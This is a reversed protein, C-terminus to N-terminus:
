SMDMADRWGVARPHRPLDKIGHDFSRCKLTKFRYRERDNWIEQKQTKTFHGTAIPIQKGNWDVIFKGLTGNPVKGLKSSSRKAYGLSDKILVNNNTEGEIFDVVISEFDTFRKLKYILGELWTGRGHKYPGYPDRMMVGEYGLELQYDEFELLEVVNKCRTHEVVSVNTDGLALVRARAITLRDEFSELAVLEDACDFIRFSLEDSPKNASMVISQTRNYVGYETEDGDILEGDLEKYKSFLSQVQASPIDEFTRSKVVYNGTETTELTDLSFADFRIDKKVTGRIGDLKPSCDLPFQLEEFYKPYTQPSEHPALMARFGVHKSRTAM